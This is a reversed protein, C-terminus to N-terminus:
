QKIEKKFLEWKKREAWVLNYADIYTCTYVDGIYPSCYVIRNDWMKWFAGPYFSKHRVCAGSKLAEYAEKWKM